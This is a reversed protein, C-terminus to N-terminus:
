LANSQILVLGKNEVDQLTQKRVLSTIAVTRARAAKSETNLPLIRIDDAGANITIGIDPFVATAEAPEINRRCPVLFYHRVLLDRLPPWPSFPYKLESLSLCLTSCRVSHPM